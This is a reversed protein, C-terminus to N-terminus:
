NSLYKAGILEGDSDTVPYALYDGGAMNVNFMNDEYAKDGELSKKYNSIKAAVLKEIVALREFLNQARDESNNNFYEAEKKLWGSLAILPEPTSSVSELQGFAEFDLMGINDSNIFRTDDVDDGDYYQGQLYAIFTIPNTVEALAFLSAPTASALHTPNIPMKVMFTYHAEENSIQEFAEFEYIRTRKKLRNWLGLDFMGEYASNDRTDLRIYENSCAFLYLFFSYNFYDGIKSWREFEDDVDSM